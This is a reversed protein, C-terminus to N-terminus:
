WSLAEPAQAFLADLEPIRTHWKQMERWVTKQPVNQFTKAKQAEQLQRETPSLKVYKQLKGLYGEYAQERTDPLGDINLHLIQNITYDVRVKTREDLKQTLPVFKFTEFNLRILNQPDEQRLDLFVHEGNPPPTGSWHNEEWYDAGTTMCFIAWRAKKYESNCKSCAYLYNEWIFTREPYHSKPWIHEIASARDTECYCCFLGPRLAELESKISQFAINGTRNDWYKQALIVRESFNGLANIGAQLTVLKAQANAPCPTTPIALM